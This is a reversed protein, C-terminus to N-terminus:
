LLNLVYIDEVQIVCVTVWATDEWGAYTATVEMYWDYGRM